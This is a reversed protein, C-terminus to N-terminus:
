PAVTIPALLGVALVGAGVTILAPGTFDGIDVAGNTSTPSFGDFAIGFLLVAVAGAVIGTRWALEGGTMPRPVTPFLEVLVPAMLQAIGGPIRAPLEGADHVQISVRSQARARKADFVSLNVVIVDGLRGADGYVILTAGLAGALEALCGDDKCGLAQKDAQFAAMRQVDGASLVDFRADKALEVSVLSAITAVTSLEVSETSPELVVLKVREVPAAALVLALAIM